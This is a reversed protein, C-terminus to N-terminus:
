IKEFDTKFLFNNPTPIFIIKFFVFFSLNFGVAFTSGALPETEEHSNLAAQLISRLHNDSCLAVAIM